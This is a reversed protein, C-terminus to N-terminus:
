TIFMNINFRITCTLNDNNSNLSIPFSYHVQNLKHVHPYNTNMNTNGCHLSYAKSTNYHGELRLIHYGGGNSPPWEMDNNVITNPLGGSINRTSDVGLIFSLSVYNGPPIADLKFAKSAEDTANIYHITNADYTTGDAKKLIMKSIFYELNKVEFVNGAENIYGNKNLTLISDDVSHNFYFTITGKNSPAPSKDPSCNEIFCYSFLILVFFITRFM